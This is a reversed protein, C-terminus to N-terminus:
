KKVKLPNANLEAFERRNKVIDCALYLAQRFSEESAEGKGALQYATGHAPSTRVVSLGATYNVGREFTLAKFPALGQDHYMALVADFKTYDNTAFFGDAPYPGLAMIKYKKAEEIAPIIIESEETGIVGNDGAHPNLGLVAIKPKRIGFDQKLSDNLVKLKNVIAEKTISKSVESIPIHGTVVGVKLNESVLLMVAKGGFETELYETHGPFNFDKSQINHKNIPATVLADIKNDKLDIIARKLSLFSAEGAIETSKGLEVRINDGLVNIINARKPNLESTDKISLISFNNIDLAKRHYAAIKPSGYVM